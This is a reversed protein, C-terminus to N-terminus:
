RQRHQEREDERRDDFPQFPLPQRARRCHRQRRERRQHQDHRRAVDHRQLKATERCLELLLALGVAGVDGGLESGHEVQQLRRLADLIYALFSGVLGRCRRRRGRRQEHLRMAHRHKRPQGRHNPRHQVDAGLRQQHDHQRDENEQVALVQAVSDEAKQALAVQGAHGASFSVALRTLRNRSSSKHMFVATPMPTAAPNYKTPM